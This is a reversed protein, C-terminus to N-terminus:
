GLNTLPKDEVSSWHAENFHYELQTTMHKCNIWLQKIQSHSSSRPTPTRWGQIKLNNFFRWWDWWTVLIVWLAWLMWKWSGIILMHTRYILWCIATPEHWQNLEQLRYFLTSKLEEGLDVKNLLKPSCETLAWILPGESLQVTIGSNAMTPSLKSGKHYYGCLFKLYSTYGWPNMSKLVGLFDALSANIDNKLQHYPCRYCSWNKSCRFSPLTVM